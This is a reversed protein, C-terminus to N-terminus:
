LKSVQDFSLEVPTERGFISVLVKLKQTDPNIENVTAPLTAFPGDMVTVSEGVEYEVSSRRVAETQAAKEEPEPALLSAVEDLSLPSPRSSLGVFGTVGPTNRVAAWSEDTLDMRVLIYGPLVKESVQQRKGQKIETVEHVPVEIQYIFDEMNLSQTRSELNAKVRNEYGAYSHVVYWDGPQLRLEAKFLAVPDDDEPAAEAEGDAEADAEADAGTDAGTDADADAEAEADAGTDAGTGVAEGEETTESGAAEAETTGAAEGGAPPTEDGATAEDDSTVGTAAAESVADDSLADDGSLVTGAAAEGSPQGAAEDPSVDAGAQDEVQDGVHVQFESVIARERRKKRATGFNNRAPGAGPVKGPTAVGRM